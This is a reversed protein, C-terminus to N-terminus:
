RGAGAQRAPHPGALYQERSSHPLGVGANAWAYIMLSPAPRKCEPSWRSRPPIRLLGADRPTRAIARANDMQGADLRVRQRGPLSVTCTGDVAGAPATSVPAQGIGHVATVLAPPIALAATAVRGSGALVSRRM